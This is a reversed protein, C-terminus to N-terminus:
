NTVQYILQQPKDNDPMQSLSNLATPIDSEKKRYLIIKKLIEWIQVIQLIFILFTHTNISNDVPDNM